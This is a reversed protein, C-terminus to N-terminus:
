ASVTFAAGYGLQALDEYVVTPAIANWRHGLLLAFGMPGALFLHVRPHRRAKQRIANRVGVALANAASAGSIANDKEGGPPSLVLLKAVPLQQEALFELVDESMPTAIQVAIAIENGQGLLHEVVEPVVPDAYASDTSWLDQRQVVALDVHTVMRLAAGVTFATAQRMSGTVVVQSAGALRSPIDEIDQQLQEWSAPPLPQRKAFADPGDFREVWDLAYTADAALPDPKLTAISLISRSHGQRLGLTSVADSIEAATLCRKGAIVQNQVWGIGASLAADDGCLGSALMQLRAKEEVLGVDRALDFRLIGLLQMLEEVTLGAATAWQERAKARDSKPGGERAMPVLLGTRADRGAVLLDLPDPARNTMLVLDVAQRGESLDKWALAVKELISPGGAKSPETLYDSNVPTTADVTYKVQLYSNPPTTRYVVVDDLNGVGDVEVGM